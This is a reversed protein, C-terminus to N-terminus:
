TPSASAASTSRRRKTWPRYLVQGFDCQDHAPRHHLHLGRLLINKKRLEVPDMDLEEAIKDMLSQSCFDVQPSVSAGCPTPTSMTPIASTSITSLQARYLSRRGRHGYPHHRPLDQEQVRRRGPRWGSRRPRSSATTTSASRTTPTSPTASPARWSPSRVPSGSRAPGALLTSVLAARSSAM